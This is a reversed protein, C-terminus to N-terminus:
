ALSWVQELAGVWRDRRGPARASLLARVTGPKPPPLVLMGKASEGGFHTRQYVSPRDIRITFPAPLVPIIPVAADPPMQSPACRLVLNPWRDALAAIVDTAESAAIGGNGMMAVGSREPRLEADTPGRAVLSALDGGGPMSPGGQDLDVVLATGAQFACGLPVVLSLVLDIPSWVAVVAM